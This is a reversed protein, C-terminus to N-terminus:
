RWLNQQIQGLTLKSLAQKCRVMEESDYFGSKWEFVGIGSSTKGKNFGSCM